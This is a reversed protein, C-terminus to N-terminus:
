QPHSGQEAFWLQRHIQAHGVHLANHDIMSLLWHLRTWDARDERPTTPLSSLDPQTDRELRERYGSLWRDFMEHIEAASATARFEADRDRAYDDGYAQQFIRWEGAGVIHVALVSFTNMEGGGQAAASPTWTRLDEDPIGDIAERFQTLQRELIEYTIQLADPSM